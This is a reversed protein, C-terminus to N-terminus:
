PLCEAQTAYKKLGVDAIMIGNGDLSMPTKYSEDSPDYVQYGTDEYRLEVPTTARSTSVELVKNLSQFRLRTNTVDAVMVRTGNVNFGLRKDGGTWALVDVAEATAAVSIEEGKWNFPTAWENRGAGSEDRWLAWVLVTDGWLETRGDFQKWFINNGQDIYTIVGAAGLSVPAQFQSWQKEASITATPRTPGWWEATTSVIDVNTSDITVEDRYTRVTAKIPTNQLSALETTYTFGEPSNVGSMAQTFTPSDGDPDPNTGDNKVWIAGHTARKSAIAEATTGEQIPFYVADIQAEGNDVQAIQVTDPGNPPQANESADAAINFPFSDQSILTRLGFDNQGVVVVEYTHNAALAFPGAPFTNFTGTPAGTLDIAADDQFIFYAFDDLDEAYASMGRLNQLYATPAIDFSIHIKSLVKPDFSEGIGVYQEIWLGYSGGIGLNGIVLAGGETTPAVWARGGPQTTENAITQIAGSVTAEKAIRINQNEDPDIWVRIDASATSPIYLIYGRYKEEGAATEAISFNSGGTANNREDVLQVTEAGGLDISDTRKIIVYADVDPSGGYLVKTQGNTITVSAGETGGPPTWTLSDATDVSLTGLGTGNLGAAYIISIGHITGAMRHIALSEARNASRNGGLSAAADRQTSGVGVAGTLCVHVSDVGVEVEAM